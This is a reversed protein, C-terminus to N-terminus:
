KELMQYLILCMLKQKTSSLKIKRVIVESLLACCFSDEDDDDNIQEYFVSM